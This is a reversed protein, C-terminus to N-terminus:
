DNVSQLNQNLEYNFCQGFISISVTTLGEANEKIISVPEQNYITFVTGGAFGLLLILIYIIFKKM